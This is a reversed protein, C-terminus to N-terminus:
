DSSKATKATTAQVQSTSATPSTSAEKQEYKKQETRQETREQGTKENELPELTISGSVSNFEIEASENGYAYGYDTNKGKLKSVVSGSISSNDLTFGYSEPLTLYADGSVTNISTLYNSSSNTSYYLDGSVSDFTIEEFDGNLDTKGSVTNVTINGANSNSLNIEGNVNNVSINTQDINRACVSGSYSNLSLYDTNRINKMTINATATNVTINNPAIDAPLEVVITKYPANSFLSEFDLTFDDLVFYEDLRYDEECGYITLSCLDYDYKYYFNEFNNAEDDTSGSLSYSYIEINSSTSRKFIVEGNSVNVTLDLVDYPDYILTDSTEESYFVEYEDPYNSFLRSIGPISSRCIVLVMGSVLISIILISVVSWIIIRNLASKKM